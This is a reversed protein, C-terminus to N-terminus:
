DKDPYQFIWLGGRMKLRWTIVSALSQMFASVLEENGSWGGTALRLFREGESADLMELEYRKLDYCVGFEPWHWNAALFDLGAAADNINWLRLADLVEDTPYDEIPMPIKLM